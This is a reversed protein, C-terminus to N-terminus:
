EAAYPGVRYGELLAGITDYGATNSLVVAEVGNPLRIIGTNSGRGDGTVWAGNHHLAVGGAADAGWWGIRGANMQATTLWNLVTNNRVGILFKAMPGLHLGGSGKTATAAGRKSGLQGFAGM